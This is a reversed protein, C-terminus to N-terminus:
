SIRNLIWRVWFLLLPLSSFQLSGPSSLCPSFLQISQKSPMLILDSDPFEDGLGWLNSYLESRSKGEKKGHDLGGKYLNFPITDHLSLVLSYFWLFTERSCSAKLPMLLSLSSCWDLLFQLKFKSYWYSFWIFFHSQMQMECVEKELHPTSVMFKVVLNLYHFM